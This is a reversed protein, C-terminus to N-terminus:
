TNPTDPPRDERRSPATALAIGALVLTTGVLFWVGLRDGFLAASAAVGVLPQLYQLAAATSAPLRRL